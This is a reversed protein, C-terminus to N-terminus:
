DDHLSSFPPLLSFHDICDILWTLPLSKIHAMDYKLKPETDSGELYVIYHSCRSLASNPAAHYPVTQEAAPINEPHPERLLLKGSGAKVLGELDRKSPCNDSVFNGHLYIHCGSLLGPLQRCLM